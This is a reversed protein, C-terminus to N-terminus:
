KECNKLQKTERYLGDLGLCSKLNNEHNYTTMGHGTSTTSNPASAYAWLFCTSTLCNYLWTGCAAQTLELWNCSLATLELWLEHQLQQQLWNPSLIGVHSDAQLSLAQPVWSGRNLLGPSHPLPAALTLLVKPDIHHLSEADGVWRECLVLILGKAVRELIFHPLYIKRFFYTRQEKFNTM